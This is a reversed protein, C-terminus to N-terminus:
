PLPSLGLIHSPSASWHSLLAEVAPGLDRRFVDIAVEVYEDKETPDDPWDIVLVAGKNVKYTYFPRYNDRGRKQGQDRAEEKTTFHPSEIQGSLIKYGISTKDFDVSKYAHLSGIHSLWIRGVVVDNQLGYIILATRSRYEPKKALTEFMLGFFETSSILWTQITLRIMADTNADRPRLLIVHKQEDVMKAFSHRWKAVATLLTRQDDLNLKERLGKFGGVYYELWNRGETTRAIFSFCLITVWGVLGGVASGFFGVILLSQQNTLLAAIGGISSGAIAGFTGNRLRENQEDAMVSAVFTALMAAAGVLWVM